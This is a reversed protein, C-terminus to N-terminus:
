DVLHIRGDLQASLMTGKEGQEAVFEIIADRLKIGVNERKVPDMFFRMKEGGEALYDTTLVRYVNSPEFAKGGILINVPKKNDIGMKAGAIPMGNVRALFNFLGQTKEGTLTMVVLENEFPMLEFIRGKTIDGKPLTTRLGGNNLLCFDVKEIHNKVCYENGTEFTLDTIFNGLVGEPTGKFMALESVVLVANM